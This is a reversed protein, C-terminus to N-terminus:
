LCLILFIIRKKNNSDDEREYEGGRMKEIMQRIKKKWNNGAPSDVYKIEKIEFNYRKLIEKITSPTYYNTHEPNVDPDNTNKRLTFLIEKTSFANPTTLILYGEKKLHLKCRELFLGVNSLHEILEGAFIVDFKKEFTFTEANQCEVDYGKKRLKEVEKKVIDIGKVSKSNDKLFDHIWFGKKNAYELSHDVCGIDLVEKDKIYQEIIQFEELNNTIKM